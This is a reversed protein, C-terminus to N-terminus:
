PQIGSTYINTTTSGAPKPQFWQAQVGCFDMGQKQLQEDGNRMYWCSEAKGSVMNTADPHQCTFEDYGNSNNQACHDCDKCLHM